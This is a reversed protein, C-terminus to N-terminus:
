ALIRGTDATGTPSEPDIGVAVYGALVVVAQCQMICCSNLSCPMKQDDSKCSLVVFSYLLCKCNKLMDDSITDVNHLVLGCDAAAVFNADCTAQFIHAALAAMLNVEAKIQMRKWREPNQQQWPRRSVSLEM